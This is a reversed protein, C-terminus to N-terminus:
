LSPSPSPRPSPSVQVQPSAKIVFHVTFPGKTLVVVGPPPRLSVTAFVDSSAGALSIPDTDILHLSTLVSPDAEVQVVIPSVQVDVVEYGAALQGTTLPNIGAPKNQKVSNVEVNVSVQFPESTVQTLPKKDPGELQVNATTQAPAGRGAVDITVFAIATQLQQEPGKLTVTEPMATKTGLICCSNPTGTTRIDVPRQVTSLADLVVEANAPDVASFM